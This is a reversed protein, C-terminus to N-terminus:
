WLRKMPCWSNQTRFRPSAGRSLNNSVFTICFLLHTKSRTQSPTRERQMPPPSLKLTGNTIHPSKLTLPASSMLWINVCSLFVLWRQNERQRGCEERWPEEKRERQMAEQWGPDTIFTSCFEYELLWVTEGWRGSLFCGKSPLASNVRLM